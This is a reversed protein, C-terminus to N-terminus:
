KDYNYIISCLHSPQQTSIRASSSQVSQKGLVNRAYPLICGSIFFLTDDMDKFLNDTYM